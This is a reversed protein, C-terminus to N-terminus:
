RMIAADIADIFNNLVPPISCIYGVKNEPQPDDIVCLLRKLPLRPAAFWKLIELAPKSLTALAASVEPEANVFKNANVRALLQCWAGCALDPIALLDALSRSPEDDRETGITLSPVVHPVLNTVAARWIGGLERTRDPNAAIDDNDSYWVFSQDPHSVGSLFFALIHTVRLLKEFVDRDWHSFQQLDGESMNLRQRQFLSPHEKSVAVTLLMGPIGDAAALFQPLAKRRIADNMGKFSMSRGELLSQRLRLRDDNWSNADEIPFLLFSLIEYRARKDTRSGSYDSFVFLRSAHRFDPLVDSGFRYEHQNISLSIDRLPGVGDRDIHRWRYTQQPPTLHRPILLVPAALHIFCEAAERGSGCFCLM